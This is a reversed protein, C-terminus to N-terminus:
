EEKKELNDLVRKLTIDPEENFNDKIYPQPANTYLQNIDLNQLAQTFRITPHAKLFAMLSQMILYNYKQREEPKIM